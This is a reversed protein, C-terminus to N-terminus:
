RGPGRSLFACSRDEVRSGGTSRGGDCPLRLKIWGPFGFRPEDVVWGLSGEEYGRPSRSELTVGETEFGFRMRERETGWCAKQRPVYHLM